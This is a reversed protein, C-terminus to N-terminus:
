RGAGVTRGSANRADGSGAMRVLSIAEATTRVGLLKRAEGVRREATRVSIFLVRAAAPITSGDALASLLQRQDSTLRATIDSVPESRAAVTDDRIPGIKALDRRVAEVEAPAVGEAFAVVVGVGRIAALLALAADDGSEITTACLLREERLDFPEAPLALGDQVRHGGDRLRRAAAAVEAKTPLIIVPPTM